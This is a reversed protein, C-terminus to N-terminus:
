MPAGTRLAVACPHEPPYSVRRDAPGPVSVRRSRERDLRVTVARRLAGTDELLDVVCQDAFSPVVLEAIAALTRGTDLSTGLLRGARSLLSARISGPEAHEARRRGPVMAAGAVAGGESGQAAATGMVQGAM